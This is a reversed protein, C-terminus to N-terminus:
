LGFKLKFVIADSEYRFTVIPDRYIFGRIEWDRQKLNARCWRETALYVEMNTPLIIEVPPKGWFKRM